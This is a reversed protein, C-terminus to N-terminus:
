VSISTPLVIRYIVKIPNRILRYQCFGRCTYKDNGNDYTTGAINLHALRIKRHQVWFWQKIDYGHIRSPM